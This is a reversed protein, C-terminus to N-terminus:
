SHASARFTGHGLLETCICALRLLSVNCMRVSCFITTWPCGFSVGVRTKTAVRATPLTCVGRPTRRFVMHYDLFPSRRAVISQPSSSTLSRGFCTPECTGRVVFCLRPASAGPFFRRCGTCILALIIIHTFRTRVVTAAILMVPLHQNRSLPKRLVHRFVHREQGNQTHQARTECLEDTRTWNQADKM